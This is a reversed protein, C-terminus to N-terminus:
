FMLQDLLEAVLKVLLKAILEVKPEALVKDHTQRPNYRWITTARAWTALSAPKSCDRCSVQPKGKGKDM